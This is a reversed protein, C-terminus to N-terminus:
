TSRGLVRYSSGDVSITIWEAPLGSVSLSTTDVDSVVLGNNMTVTKDFKSISAELMSVDIREAKIKGASTWNAVEMYQAKVTSASIFDSEISKLRASVADLQGVSAKEAILNELEATKANLTTITAYKATFETANVLGVLDIKEAKITIKEATQNIESIVSDKSVKMSIQQANQLIQSSLDKEIDVIESRTEEVTRTLKNTKGKLQRIQENVDNVKKAQYQAGEADYIDRLAQIGKLTRQLIYTYVIEYTTRLKIGDGVELCPNGKAEVHAPRYWVRSIVSYLNAAITNLDEASKGYVLFNDQVIYCNTGTGYICGIDDEEQRIQLKNIREAIFDEYKVSIYHSSSIPNINMPDRPFLDDAPYLTDSPYLGEVMEQLFIYQFKGNRGIHGFCGNIECIATIVTKGSLVSPDITRTIIMDDNILSVDEQEIGFHALFSTRFEKLTVTSDSNPLITNYWNTVDENIIDYMSDYAVIDRYRRDATPQDSNVKYKGFRFPVDANGGLTETITLWKDKLSTFTNSIRFEISSAECSGFRLQEHSCLSEILEFQEAHLEENTIIGADFEIHMQKDVSEQLFLNAYKYETM